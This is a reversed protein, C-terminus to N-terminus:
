RESRPHYVGVRLLLHAAIEERVALAIRICEDSEVPDQTLHRSVWPAVIALVVLRWWGRLRRGGYPAEHARLSGRSKSVNRAECSSANRARRNSSSSTSCTRQSSSATTPLYRWSTAWRALRNIGM